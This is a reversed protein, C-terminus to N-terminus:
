YCGGNDGLYFGVKNDNLIRRQWNGAWRQLSAAREKATVTRELHRGWGMSGGNVAHSACDAAAPGGYQRRGGCTLCKGREQGLKANNALSVSELEAWTNDRALGKKIGRCAFHTHRGKTSRCYRTYPYRAQLHSLLDATNHDRVSGQSSKSPWSWM